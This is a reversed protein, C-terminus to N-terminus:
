RGHISPKKDLVDQRACFEIQVLDFLYFKISGHILSM